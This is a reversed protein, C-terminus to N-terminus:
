QKLLEPKGVTSSQAQAPSATVPSAPPKVPEFQAGLDIWQILTRLDEERLPIGKEPPPM